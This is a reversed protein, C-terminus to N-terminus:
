EKTSVQFAIIKKQSTCHKHLWGFFDLHAFSLVLLPSVHLRENLALYQQYSVLMQSFTLRNPLNIVKLICFSHQFYATSYLLLAAEAKVPGRFFYYILLPLAESFTVSKKSQLANM